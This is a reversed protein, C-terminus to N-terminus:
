TEYNTLFNLFSTIIYAARTRPSLFRHEKDDAFTCIKITDSLLRLQTPCSETMHRLTLPTPTKNVGTLM